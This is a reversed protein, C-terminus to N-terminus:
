GPSMRPVGSSCTSSAARVPSLRSGMRIRSRFWITMVWPFPGTTPLIRIRWVRARSRTAGILRSMQTAWLWPPM